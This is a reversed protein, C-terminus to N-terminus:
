ELVSLATDIYGRVHQGPLSTRSMSWVGMVTGVLFDALADSDKDQSLEGTEKARKFASRFLGGIEELWGECIARAQPDHLDMELISNCIFCGKKDEDTTAVEALLDFFARIEPLSPDPKLLPQMMHERGRDRYLQLSKHYLDEKSGFSNYLSFRNIGMTDVLEQMSCAFFGKQWFLGLAKGLVQEEDFAKPRGM